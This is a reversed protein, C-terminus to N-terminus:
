SQQHAERARRDGHGRAGDRVHPLVCYLRRTARRPRPTAVVRVRRPAAVDTTPDGQDATARLGRFHTSYLATLARVRHARASEDPALPLECLLDARRGHRLYTLAQDRRVSHPRPDRALLPGRPRAALRHRRAAPLGARDARRDGGDAPRRCLAAARAAAAVGGVLGLRRRLPRHRRQRRQPRGLRLRCQPQRAAVLPVRERRRPGDRRARRRVVGARQRVDRRPGVTPPPPPAHPARPPHTRQEQNRPGCTRAPPPLVPLPRHQSARCGRRHM